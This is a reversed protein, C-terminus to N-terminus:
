SQPRAGPAQQNEVTAPRTADEPPTTQGSADSALPARATDSAAPPGQDGGAGTAPAGLASAPMLAPAERFQAASWGARLGDGDVTVSTAPIARLQGDPGRVVIEMVGDHTRRGELRGLEAGDAGRVVAGRQPGAQAQPAPDRVEAAVSTATASALAVAALITFTKM